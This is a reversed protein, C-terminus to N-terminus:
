AKLKFAVTLQAPVATLQHVEEVGEQNVTV